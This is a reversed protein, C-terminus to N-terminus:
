KKEVLSLVDIRGYSSVGVGKGNKQFVIANYGTSDLFEWSKGGDYSIDTGSTGTSIYVQNKFHTVCSRYEQIGTSLSWSIGGDHTYIKSSDCSTNQWHGGVAVGNKNDAFAMAYIGSGEPQHHYPLDILKWSTLSKDSRLVKGTENGLGILVTNQDLYKISTGSAAFGAYAGAKSTLLSSDTLAEWTEGGDQTRLITPLQNIPDGFAIGEQNNLFDIGDLFTLPDAGSYVVQFSDSFAEKLLIEAPETIALAIINGNDLVDIDRLHRGEAFYIESMTQDALNYALISGKSGAIYAIDNSMDLGRFHETSDTVAVNKIQLEYSLTPMVEQGANM